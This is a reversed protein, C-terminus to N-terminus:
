EAPVLKCDLIDVLRDIVDSPLTREGTLFEDLERLEVGCREAIETVPIGGRHIRRRLAGSVTDEKAADTRLQDRRMLDPLEQAVAARARELRQQEDPTLQRYIRRAERRM